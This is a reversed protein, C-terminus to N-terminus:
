TKGKASEANTSTFTAAHLVHNVSGQDGRSTFHRPLDAHLPCFALGSGMGGVDTDDPLEKDTVFSGDFYVPYPFLPKLEADLFLLFRSFLGSRHDNWTFNASIDALSCEHIGTPLLGNPEFTPIPMPLSYLNHPRVYSSVPRNRCAPTQALSKYDM